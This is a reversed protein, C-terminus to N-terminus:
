GEGDVRSPWKGARLLLPRTLSEQAAAMELPQQAFAFQSSKPSLLVVVACVFLCSDLYFHMPCHGLLYVNKCLMTGSVPCVLSLSGQCPFPVPQPRAM